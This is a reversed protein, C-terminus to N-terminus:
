ILAAACRFCRDGFRTSTRQIVVTLMDSSRLQRRRTTSALQCDVALYPPMLGYVLQYEVCQKGLVPTMHDSRRSGSVLRTAANQVAQLRRTLDDTIGLLLSNCCDLRCMIFAHVVAKTADPSLLRTILQLQRLLVYTYVKKNRTLMSVRSILIAIRDTQRDTV